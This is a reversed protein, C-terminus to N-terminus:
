TWLFCLRISSAFYACGYSHLLMFSISLMDEGFQLQILYPLSVDVVDIYWFLMAIVLAFHWIAM